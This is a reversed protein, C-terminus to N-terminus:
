EIIKGKVGKMFHWGGLMMMKMNSTKEREIFIIKMILLFLFITKKIIFLPFTSFYSASLYLHNRMIYYRRLPSHCSITMCRFIGFGPTSEGLNHELQASGVQHICFGHKRLRLSFEFDVSDIFLDESYMGIDEFLKMAVLNGSTIATEVQRNSRDGIRTELAQIFPTLSVVNQDSKVSALYQLMNSVMTKHAVSDQDMTLLWRYGHKRAFRVGINLAHGIGKNENLWNVSVNPQRSLNELISVSVADSSNDVVHVHDVQGRLADITRLTKQGGNFSVVVAMIETPKM